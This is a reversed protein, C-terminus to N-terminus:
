NLRTKSAAAQPSQPNNSVAGAWTSFGGTIAAVSDAPKSGVMNSRPAGIRATPEVLGVRGMEDRFLVLDEGLWRVLKPAESNIQHSFSVPLWCRRLTEGAPTGPGVRTMMENEKSEM